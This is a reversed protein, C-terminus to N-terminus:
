FKHAKSLLQGSGRVANVLFNTMDLALVDPINLMYTQSQVTILGNTHEHGKFHFNYPLSKGAALQMVINGLKASIQQCYLFQGTLTEKGAFYGTHLYNFENILKIIRFYRFIESQEIFASRDDPNQALITATTQCFKLTLVAFNVNYENAQWLLLSQMTDEISNKLAESFKGERPGNLNVATKAKVSSNVIANMTDIYTTNFKYAEDAYVGSIHNM